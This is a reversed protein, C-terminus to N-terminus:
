HEYCNALVKGLKMALIYGIVEGKKRKTICNIGSNEGWIKCNKKKTCLCVLTGFIFILCPLLYTM